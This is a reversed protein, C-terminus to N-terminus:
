LADNSCVFLNLIIGLEIAEKPVITNCSTGNARKPHSKGRLSSKDPIKSLIRGSKPGPKRVLECSLVPLVSGRDAVYFVHRPISWKQPGSLDIPYQYKDLIEQAQTVYALLEWNRYLRQWEPFVKKLALNIDIITSTYEKM